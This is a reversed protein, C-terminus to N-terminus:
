TISYKVINLLNCKCKPCKASAKIWLSGSIINKFRKLCLAKHMLTMKSHNNKGVCSQGLWAGLRSIRYGGIQLPPTGLVYRVCSPM